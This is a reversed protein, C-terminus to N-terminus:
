FGSLHENEMGGLIITGTVGPMPRKRNRPKIRSKSLATPLSSGKEWSSSISFGSINSGVKTRLEFLNPELAKSQPERLAPGNAELMDIDRLTKALMKEDLTALYAAVPQFGDEMTYFDVTYNSM